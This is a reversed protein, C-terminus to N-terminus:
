FGNRNGSSSRKELPAMIQQEPDQKNEWAQLTPHPNEMQLFCGEWTLRRGHGHCSEMMQGEGAVHGRGLLSHALWCCVLDQFVLTSNGTHRAVVELSM